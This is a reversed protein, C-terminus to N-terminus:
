TKEKSQKNIEDVLIKAHDHQYHALGCLVRILPYEVHLNEYETNMAQFEKKLDSFNSLL